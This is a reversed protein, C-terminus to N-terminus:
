ANSVISGIPTGSTRSTFYWRIDCDGGPTFGQAGDATWSDITVWSNQDPDSTQLSVTGVWASAGPQTYLSVRVSDYGSSARRFRFPGVTAGTAAMPGRVTRNLESAV